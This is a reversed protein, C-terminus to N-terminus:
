NLSWLPHRHRLDCQFTPLGPSELTYRIYHMSRDDSGEQLVPVLHGRLAVLCSPLAGLSLSMPVSVSLLSRRDRADGDRRGHGQRATLELCHLWRLCVFLVQSHHGLNVWSEKPM